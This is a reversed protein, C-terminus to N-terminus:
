AGGGGGAVEVEVDELVQVEAEMEEVEEVEVRVGARVGARVRFGHVGLGHVGLGHVGSRLHRGHELAVDDATLEAGLYTQEVGRGAAHCPDVIGLFEGRLGVM